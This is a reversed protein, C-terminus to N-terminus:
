FGTASGSGIFTKWAGCDDTVTFSVLVAGPQARRATFTAQTTGSPYTITHPASTAPTGPAEITSARTEHLEISKLTNQAFGPNTTVAITVQRANPGAPLNSVTVRPRPSCGSGMNATYTVNQEGLTVTQSQAGGHAWGGFVQGAPPQAGITHASGAIATTTYPPIHAQGDFSVTGISPNAALTVQLTKPDMQRTAVGNLGFSDTATLKIEFSTGDGHDPVTFQASAGTLTVFPHDHCGPGFGPCHKLIVDWRLNASPITGQQDTASGQLQIVEGVKFKAGAAPSSISPTPPTNPNQSTWSARAIAPWADEFYEVIVTHQGATMVRSANVTNVAGSAWDDLVPQNDVFIRIGDDSTTFNYTDNGFTFRGTWRVSFHDNQIGSIPSGTGWDYDITSECRAVNPAGSLNQNNFYEARFQGDPCQIPTFEAVYRIRHLEGSGAAVYWLAGDPGTEIQVPGVINAWFMAPGYSPDVTNSATLKVSKIWGQAYDGYFLVGFYSSPFAAGSYFTGMLSAGGQETHGWEILPPRAQLAPNSQNILTQCVPDSAYGAQVSSGEYCPWGGNTTSPVVDIEETIGWGVDGVFLTGNSPRVNIRFPNRFGSAWVKSRPHDANGNWYPNSNLGKGDTNVRLIKGALSDLNQVRYARPDPENFNAGDGVSVFLHGDPAFELGGGAHSWSDVPLCDATSPPTPCGPGPQTGLIVM